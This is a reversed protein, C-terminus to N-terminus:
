LPSAPSLPKFTGADRVRAENAANNHNFQSEFDGFAAAASVDSMGFSYNKQGNFRFRLFLTATTNNPILLAPRATSNLRVVVSTDNQVLLVKNTGGAPDAAVANSAA